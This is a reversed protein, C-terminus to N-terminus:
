DDHRQRKQRRVRDSGLRGDRVIVVGHVEGGRQHENSHDTMPCIHSLNDTKGRANKLQMRHPMKQRGSRQHACVRVKSRLRGSTLFANSLLSWPFCRSQHLLLDHIKGQLTNKSSCILQHNFCSAWIFLRFFSFHFFFVDVRSVDHRALCWRSCRLLSNKKHFFSSKFFLILCYCFRICSPCRPSFCLFPHQFVYRLSLFGCSV